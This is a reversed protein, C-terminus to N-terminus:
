YADIQEPEESPVDMLNSWSAFRTAHQIANLLQSSTSFEGSQPVDSHVFHALLAEEGPEGPWGEVQVYRFGYYTFLSRYQEVGNAGACTYQGEMKALNRNVTGDTNLIENHILTIVTGNPCDEVKLETQGAMNQGFDFVFVGPKPQTIGSDVVSYTRDTRILVGHASIVAGYSTPTVAPAETAQWPWAPSPAFGCESWGALAAAIRGDFSEGDYINDSTVPGSTANFVLAGAGGAANSSHYTSTAGDQTTVSLVLRFQRVGAKISPEAWWGNGLMVGLANCGSRLQASVDVVDYLTRQQFTMFQGLEHDDTLAGNLWTKAYGLGTIFLRARTVPSALALEARFTNLTGGSGSVWEAAGWDAAALLGTSFTSSAPASTAGAADAWTVTWTYDANAALAPGKYGINLSSNSAVVGSDWVPAATPFTQAVVIRYSALAAGRAPHLPAFSFRPTVVDITLPSDLYEIRLRASSGQAAAPAARALLLLLLLLLPPLLPSPNPPSLHSSM